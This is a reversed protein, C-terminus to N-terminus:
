DHQQQYRCEDADTGLLKIVGEGDCHHAKM